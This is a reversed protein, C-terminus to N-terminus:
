ARWVLYGLGFYIFMLWIADRPELPRRPRGISWLVIVFSLIWYGYLGWKWANM